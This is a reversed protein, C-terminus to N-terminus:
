KLNAEMHKAIMKLVEWRTIPGRVEPPYALRWEVKVTVSFPELAKKTAFVLHSLANHVDMLSCRPGSM